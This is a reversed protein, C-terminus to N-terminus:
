KCIDIVQRMWGITGPQFTEIRDPEPLKIGEKILEEKAEAILDKYNPLKKIYDLVSRVNNINELTATQGLLTKAITNQDFISDEGSELVSSGNTETYKMGRASAISSLLARLCDDQKNEKM